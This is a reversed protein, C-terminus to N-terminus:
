GGLIQKTQSGYEDLTIEGEAYKKAAIALQFQKNWGTDFRGTAAVTGFFLAGWFFLVASFYEPKDAFGVTPFACAVFMVLFVPCTFGALWRFVPRADRKKPEIVTM